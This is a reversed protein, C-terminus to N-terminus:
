LENNDRRKMVEDKIKPLDDECWKRAKNGQVMIRSTSTYFSIAVNDNSGGGDHFHCERIQAGIKSQQEYHTWIIDVNYNEMEEKLREYHDTVCLM